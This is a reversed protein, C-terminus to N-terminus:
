LVWWTYFSKNWDWMYFWYCLGFILIQQVKFPKMFIASYLTVEIWFNCVGTLTGYTQSKTVFTHLSTASSLFDRSNECGQVLYLGPCFICDVIFTKVQRPWNCRWEILYDVTIAFILLIHQVFDANAHAMFLVFLTLINYMYMIQMYKRTTLTPFHVVTLSMAPTSDCHCVLLLDTKGISIEKPFLCKVGFCLSAPRPQLTSNSYLRFIVYM